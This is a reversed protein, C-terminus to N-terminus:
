IYVQTLPKAINQYRSDCNAPWSAKTSTTFTVFREPSPPSILNTEFKLRSISFVPNAEKAQLLAEFNVRKSRGFRTRSEQLMLSIEVYQLKILLVKVKKM